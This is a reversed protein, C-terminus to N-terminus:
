ERDNEQQLIEIVRQVSDKLIDNTVFYHYLGSARAHAIEHNAAALRRAVQAKSETQRGELRAQLTEMTPPLIFIRISEPAQQAIQAAGQIDIALIVIEGRALAQEVARRPTGYGQGCYEAHELLEGAAVMRDFEARSLFHYDRGDVEGERPPRTTASVSCRSNPLARLLERCITSKGAGSPGSIVVLKGRKKDAM